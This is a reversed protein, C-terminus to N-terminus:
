KQTTEARENILENKFSDNKITKRIDMEKITKHVVGISVGVESAIVRYPKMDQIYSSIIKNRKYTSIPKRGWVNGKYSTTRGNRKRVAAKIRDSKKDSEDQAIWGMIQLMLDYIAENWPEPMNNIEEFFKQRFSYIKCRHIKCFKFFAILKKRNRYLRDLDWVILNRIKNNKIYSRLKDFGVRDKDDKWASQEDELLMYDVFTNTKQDKPRISECDKLQNYPNQEKTSTRIYIITEKFVENM